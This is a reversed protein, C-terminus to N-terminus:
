KLSALACGLHDYNEGNFVITRDAAVGHCAHPYSLISPKPLVDFTCTNSYQIFVLDIVSTTHPEMPNLIQPLSGGVCGGAFGEATPMLTLESNNIVMIQKTIQPMGWALNTFFIMTVMSLIFFKSKIYM